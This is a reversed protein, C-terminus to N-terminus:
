DIGQLFDSYTNNKRVHDSHLFDDDKTVYLICWSICNVLFYLEGDYDGHLYLACSFLVLGFYCFINKFCSRLFKFM